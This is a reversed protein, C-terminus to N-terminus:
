KKKLLYECKLISSPPPPPAGESRLLPRLTPAALLSPASRLFRSLAARGPLASCALRLSSLPLSSPRRSPACRRGPSAPGSLSCRAVFSSHGFSSRLRPARVFAGSRAPRFLAPAYCGLPARGRLPSPGPASLIAGIEGGDEMKFHSYRNFFFLDKPREGEERANHSTKQRYKRM